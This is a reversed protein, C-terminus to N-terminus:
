DTMSEGPPQHKRTHHHAARVIYPSCAHPMANLNKRRKVKVKRKKTSEDGGREATSGPQDDDDESEARQESSHQMRHTAQHDSGEEPKVNIGARQEEALEEALQEEFREEEGDDEEGQEAEEQKQQKPQSGQTLQHRHQQQQEQAVRAAAHSHQQINPVDAATVLKMSDGKMMWETSDIEQQVLQYRHNLHAIFLENDQQSREHKTEHIHRYHAVVDNRQAILQQYHRIFSQITALQAPTPQITAPTTSEAPHYYSMSPQQVTPYAACSPQHPSGVSAAAYAQQQQYGTHPQSSRGYWRQPSQRYTYASPRSHTATRADYQHQESAGYQREQLVTAATHFSEPSQQLPPPSSFSSDSEKREEGSMDAMQQQQGQQRDIGQSCQVRQPTPHHLIPSSSSGRMDHVSKMHQEVTQLMSGISPQPSLAPMSELQSPENQDSKVQQESADKGEHWEGRVVHVDVSPSLDIRCIDFQDGCLVAASVGAAEPAGVAM